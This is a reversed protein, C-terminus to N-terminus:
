LGRSPTSQEGVAGHLVGLLSRHIELVFLPADEFGQDGLRVAAGISAAPRPAMCALHQVADEPHQAGAGRPLVHGITIGRRRGTM